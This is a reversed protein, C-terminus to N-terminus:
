FLIKAHFHTPDTPCLAYSTTLAPSREPHCQRTARVADIFPGHGVLRAHGGAQISISISIQIAIPIGIGIGIGIEPM